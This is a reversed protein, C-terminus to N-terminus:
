GHQAADIEEQALQETIDKVLEMLPTQPLQKEDTARDVMAKADAYHGAEIVEEVWGVPSRRLEEEAASPLCHFVDCIRRILYAHPLPGKDDLGRHLM